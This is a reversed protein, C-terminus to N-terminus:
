RITPEMMPSLPHCSSTERPNSPENLTGPYTLKVYHNTADTIQFYFTNGSYVESFDFAYATGMGLFLALLLAFFGKKNPLFRKM